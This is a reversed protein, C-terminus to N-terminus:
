LFSSYPHCYSPIDWTFGALNSKALGMRTSSQFNPECFACSPRKPNNLLFLHVMIRSTSQQFNLVRRNFASFHYALAPDLLVTKRCIM